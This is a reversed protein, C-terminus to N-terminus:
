VCVVQVRFFNELDEAFYQVAYDWVALFGIIGLKRDLANDVADVDQKLLLRESFLRNPRFARPSKRLSRM